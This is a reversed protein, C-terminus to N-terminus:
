LLTGLVRVRHTLNTVFNGSTSPAAGPSLQGYRGRNIFAPTSSYDALRSRREGPPFYFRYMLTPQSRSQRSKPQLHTTLNPTVPLLIKRPAAEAAARNSDM